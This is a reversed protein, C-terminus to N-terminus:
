GVSGSGVARALLGRTDFVPLRAAAQQDQQLYDIGPQVHALPGAHRYFRVFRKSQKQLMKDLQAVWVDCDHADGLFSQM